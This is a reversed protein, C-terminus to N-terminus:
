LEASIGTCAPVYRGGIYEVTTAYYFNGRIQTPRVAPPQFIPATQPTSHWDLELKSQDTKMPIAGTSKFSEGKSTSHGMSGLKLGNILDYM